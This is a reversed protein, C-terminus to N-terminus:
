KRLNFIACENKPTDNKTYEYIKGDPTFGLSLYMKNSIPNEEDALVTPILGKGILMESLSSVLAGAYGHGRKEPSTFVTNIRAYEKGIFAARAIACIGNDEWLYLGNEGDLFDNIEKESVTLGLSSAMSMLLNKTEPCNDAPLMKGSATKKILKDCCYLNYTKLSYSPLELETDSIVIAETSKTLLKENNM